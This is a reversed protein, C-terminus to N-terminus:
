WDGLERALRRDEMLSEVARRARGEADTVDSVRTQTSRKSHRVYVSEVAAQWAVPDGHLAELDAPDIMLQPMDAYSTIEGAEKRYMRLVAPLRGRDVLARILHPKVGVLKAAQHTTYHRVLDSM